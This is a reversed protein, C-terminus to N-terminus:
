IRTDAYQSPQLLREVVEPWTLISRTRIHPCSLALQIARQISTASGPHYGFRGHHAGIVEHPCVTPLGFFDYQLMKLSSDALYAPLVAARYPAIGFDAHKIYQITKAYAMRPYFLVNNSSIGTGDHGSGIVHFTVNPFKKGAVSFFTPDFLMSGVSVAHRTRQPGRTYPSPEGLANLGDEIGHPVFFVNKAYAMGNLTSHGWHTAMSRSVLAVVDFIPTLTELKRQVYVSAGIERLGDNGKYILRAQPNARAIRQALVPAIGSEFIVVDAQAAWTDLAACPWREYIWFLTKELPWLWRERLAMPHVPTKWLYCQVGRHTDLKNAKADVVVRADRKLRSLPSYRMSFFNVVGHKLLANAVFHISARNPTRYDHHASVILTNM